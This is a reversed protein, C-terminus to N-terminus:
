CPLSRCRFRGSTHAKNFMGAIPTNSLVMRRPCNRQKDKTSPLALLRRAPYALTPKGRKKITKVNNNIDIATM